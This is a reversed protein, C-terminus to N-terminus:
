RRLNGRWKFHWWRLPIWKNESKTNYTLAVWKKACEECEVITQWWIENDYSKLDPLDCKHVKEEEQKPDYLVVYKGM